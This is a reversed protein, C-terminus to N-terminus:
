TCSMYAPLVGDPMSKGHAIQHSGIAWHLEVIFVHRKTMRENSMLRLAKFFHKEQSLCVKISYYNGTFFFGANSLNEPAQKSSHPWINFTGTKESNYSCCVCLFYAIDYFKFKLGFLFNIYALICYKCQEPGSHPRHEM